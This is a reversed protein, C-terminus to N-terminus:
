YKEKRILEGDEYVWCEVGNNKIYVREIDGYSEVVIVVPVPEITRPEPQCALLFLPILNKMIM